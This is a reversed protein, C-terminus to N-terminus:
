IAIAQARVRRKVKRRSGGRGQYLSPAIDDADGEYWRLFHIGRRVEDYARALLTFNRRRQENAAQLAKYREARTAFAHNLEAATSEAADLEHERLTTHGSLKAWDVRYVGGPHNTRWASRIM